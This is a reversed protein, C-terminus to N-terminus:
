VTIYETGAGGHTVPVIDISFVLESREDGKLNLTAHKESFTM